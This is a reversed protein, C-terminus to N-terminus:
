DKEKKLYNEIKVIIGIISVIIISVFLILSILPFITEVFLDAINYIIIIGIIISFFSICFLNVITTKNLKKM